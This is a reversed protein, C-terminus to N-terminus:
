SRYQSSRKRMKERADDRTPTKRKKNGDNIKNAADVKTYELKASEAKSRCHSVMSVVSLLYPDQNLYDSPLWGFEKCLAFMETYTGRDQFGGYGDPLTRKPCRHFNVTGLSDTVTAVISEGDTITCNRM